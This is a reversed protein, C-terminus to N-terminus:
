NTEYNAISSFMLGRGSAVIVNCRMFINKLVRPFIEKSLVLYELKM